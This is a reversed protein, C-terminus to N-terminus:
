IASLLCGLLISNIKIEATDSRSGLIVPKKSGLIIGAWKAKNFHLWSKGLVNGTEMNPFLILDVDGAIKSDIGKHQAAEESFAVDFAIPGEMICQPLGGELSLKVLADADVTSPMKPNVMENATLCAVKPNEIGLKKIATLANILIKRKEEYDPSVNLGSDTCFLLKHYDPIEYVAMHSILGEGRLGKERNLVGRMFVSTNVLGKFLVDARGERVDLVAKEVADEDDKADIIEYHMLHVKKALNEITEKKGYLRSTIVGLEEAEKLAKLLEEDEAAAVALVFPGKSKAMERIASFSELM